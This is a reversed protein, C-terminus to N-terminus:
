RLLVMKRTQEFAGAQLQYFYIGSSVPQGLDDTGDWIVSKFGSEEVGQVLTRVEHGLIDFVQLTVRAQEPLDYRITTVPNFPNPYNQQLVFGEPLPESSGPQIGLPYDLYRALQVPDIRGEHWSYLEAADIRGEYAFSGKKLFHYGYNDIQLPDSGITPNFIAM